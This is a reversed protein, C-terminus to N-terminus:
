DLRGLVGHSPKLWRQFMTLAAEPQDHPVMHGAEDVTAFTLNGYHRFQGGHKGKHVYWDEMPARKYGDKGQWDLNEIWAANGLYNCIFDRKGSYALLRIGADLIEKIAWTSDRAGDGTKDFDDYVTNSCVQFKNKGKDGIPFSDIGLAHRTHNSDLFAKIYGDEPYKKGHKFDYPSRDTKEWPSFLKKECFSNAKKCLTTNYPGNGPHVNCKDILSLCPSVNEQMKHCTQNSLFPGHGSADTCAYDYYAKNQYHPSTIGNGILVSHLPLPELGEEPHQKYRANDKLIQSVILPIYRGAYSEGALHFDRLTHNTQGSHFPIGQHQALLHLVASVDRAAEVATSTRGSPRGSKSANKWSAYSFGVGTPQDLFLVSSNSTWSYPNWEAHPGNKDPDAANCPGLEMLLGSMSSCGPGGNLWVTLPDTKPDNRSEFAWFFFHEVVGKDKVKTPERGQKMEHEYLKDLDVDLYGSWSAGNRECLGDPVRHLRVSHAPLSPHVLKQFHPESANFSSQRAFVAAASAVVLTVSLWPRIMASLFFTYGWM